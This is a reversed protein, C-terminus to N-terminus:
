ARRRRRVLVFAGFLLGCLPGTADSSTSCGGGGTGDDFGAVCYGTSAVPQCGFGNPCQGAACEELCFMGENVAGCVGSACDTGATCAGGLGGQTGPGTVCRGGICTETDTPCDSPKMCPEGIVVNLSAQGTAGYIDTAVVKITHAGNALTTPANFAFPQSFLIGANVDDVFGQAQAIGNDDTATVSFGFGPAVAAGSKPNVFTVTPPTPTGSGFLDKISQFSNQTNGGCICPHQQGNGGTCNQGGPSQGSVCDSGCQVAANKFRKRGSYQFYTLPDSADIVHDLAFSHAIEQAATACIDEVAGQYSPSNAFDFVLSNPIYDSCTGPSVGLYNADLGIQTSVGAIMIEFHPAAVPNTTTITVGFPSFVDKVCTVVQDWVADSQNWAALTRTQNIGWHGQTTGMDLSSTNGPAIICGNPKCNNLYIINSNVAPPLPEVSAPEMVRLLRNGYTALVPTADENISDGQGPVRTELAVQPAAFVTGTAFSVVLATAGSFLRLM